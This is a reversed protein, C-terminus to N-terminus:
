AQNSEEQQNQKKPYSAEEQAHKFNLVLADRTCLNGSEGSEVLM